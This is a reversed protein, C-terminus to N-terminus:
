GPDRHDHRHPGATSFSAFMLVSLFFFSAIALRPLPSRGVRFNSNTEMQVLLQEAMRKVKNKMKVVNGAELPAPTVMCVSLQLLSLVLALTYDM